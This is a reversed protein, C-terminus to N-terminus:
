EGDSISTTIKDADKDYDVKITNGSSIEGNIILEALEDELYKQVARKLPRAGFQSDYGREAIFNKAEDSIELKYGLSDMRKYFGALEIDIIKFIAEKDLADFM